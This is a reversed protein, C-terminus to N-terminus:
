LIVGDCNVMPQSRLVWNTSGLLSGIFTGMKSGGYPTLTLRLVSALKFYNAQGCSAGLTIPV